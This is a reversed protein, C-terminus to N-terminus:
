PSTTSLVWWMIVENVVGDVTDLVGTVPSLAWSVATEVIPIGDVADTVTDVFGSIADIVSGFFRPYVTVELYGKHGRRTDNGMISRTRAMDGNVMHTHVSVNGSSINTTCLDSGRYRPERKTLLSRPCAIDVVTLPAMRPLFRHTPIVPVAVPVAVVVAFTTVLLLSLGALRAFIM